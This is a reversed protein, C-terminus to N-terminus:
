TICNSAKCYNITSSVSMQTSMVVNLQSIIKQGHIKNMVTLNLLNAIVMKAITTKLLM